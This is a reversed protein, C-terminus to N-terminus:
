YVALFHVDLAGIKHKVKSLNEHHKNKTTNFQYKDFHLDHYKIEVNYLDNIRNRKQIPGFM